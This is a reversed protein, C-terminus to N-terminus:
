LRFGDLFVTCLGACMREECVYESMWLWATIRSSLLTFHFIKGRRTRHPYIIAAVAALSTFSMDREHSRRYGWSRWALWFILIPKAPPGIKGWWIAHKCLTMWFLCPPLPLCCYISIWNTETRDIMDLQNATSTLRFTNYWRKALIYHSAKM